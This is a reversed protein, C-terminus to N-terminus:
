GSKHTIISLYIKYGLNFVAEREELTNAVKILFEPPSKKEILQDGSKSLNLTTRIAMSLGSSTNRRNKM